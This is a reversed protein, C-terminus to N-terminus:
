SMDYDDDHLPYDNALIDEDNDDVIKSYDVMGRHQEIAEDPLIWAPGDSAEADWDEDASYSEAEIAGGDTVRTSSNISLSVMNNNTQNLTEIVNKTGLLETESNSVEFVNIPSCRVYPQETNDGENDSNLPVELRQRSLLVPLEEEEDEEEDSSPFFRGTLTPDDDNRLNRSSLSQMSISCPSLKQILSEVGEGTVETHGLIIELPLVKHSRRVMRSDNIFEDSIRFCSSIDLHELHELFFLIDIMAINTLQNCARLILRKIRGEVVLPRICDDCVEVLYSINLMELSPLEALSKIGICSIGGHCAEIDLSRISKCHKVFEKIVVDNIALNHHLDLDVLNSLKCLSSMSNPTVSLPKGGFALCKIQKCVQLLKNIGTDTVSFCDTLTVASLNPCKMSINDLGANSLQSCGSLNMTTVTDPLMYLCKGQLKVSDVIELCELRDLDKFMWWLGKEGVNHCSKFCLRRLKTCKKGLEKLSPNRIPVHTLDLDELNPCLDGIKMLSKNTLLYPSSSLDLVKLNHSVKRLLSLLIRDTLGGSGQFSKFVGDFRLCRVEGWSQLALNQWKRCVMESKVRSRLNLFSFIYLFLDDNLANISLPDQQLEEDSAVSSEEDKFQPTLFSDAAEKLKLKGKEGTYQKRGKKKEAWSVTMVRDDLKLEYKNAKIAKDADFPNAFIVFGFGRSRKTKRDKIIDCRLVKGFYEFFDWLERVRVKFGINGVFVKSNYPDFTYQKCFTHASELLRPPESMVSLLDSDDDSSYELNDDGIYFDDRIVPAFLMSCPSSNWRKFKIEKLYLFDDNLLQSLGEKLSVSHLRRLRRLPAKSKHRNIARPKASSAQLFAEDSLM